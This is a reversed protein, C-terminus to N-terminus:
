NHPVLHPQETEGPPLSNLKTTQGLIHKWDDSVYSTPYYNTRIKDSM